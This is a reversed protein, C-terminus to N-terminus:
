DASTWVHIKLQVCVYSSMCFHIEIEQLVQCEMYRKAKLEIGNVTWGSYQKGKGQPLICTLSEKEKVTNFHRTSNETKQKPHTKSQEWLLFTCTRLYIKIALFWSHKFYLWSSSPKRSPSLSTEAAVGVASALANVLPFNLRLTLVLFVGVGREEGQVAFRFARSM